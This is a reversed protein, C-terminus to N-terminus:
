GTPLWDVYLLIAVQRLSNFGPGKKSATLYFSALTPPAFERKVFTVEYCFHPPFSFFTLVSPMCTEM